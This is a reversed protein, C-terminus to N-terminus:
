CIEGGKDQFHIPAHILIHFYEKTLLINLIDGPMSHLNHQLLRAPSM